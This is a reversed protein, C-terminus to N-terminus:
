KGTGDKKDAKWDGEYEDGNAYTYVGITAHIISSVKAMRAVMRGTEKMDTGTITIFHAQQMQQDYIGKGDRKDEKWDGDYENKDAYNM